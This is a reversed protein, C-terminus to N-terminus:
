VKGSAHLTDYLAQVLQPVHDDKKTPQSNLGFTVVVNRKPFYVQVMRYGLTEGEYWWITGLKPVMMRAIGLGFGRPESESVDPIPKGTKLSVIKELEAQQKAPVLVGTYLARAWHALDAPRSIIGGAAQKWSSSHRSVDAGLVPALGANDEDTSAFYGSVLRDLVAAPYRDAAYYTDRLYPQSRILDAIQSTYSHGSAREIILQALVYNTNSYLYGPSKTPPRGNGPYVYGILETATFTHQPDKSYRALMSPVADYTPIGSTMDLLSRISVDKWLPYQPLWRGVTQDISLKGAAELRLIEIATFAKTNSGIEWLNSPTVRTRGGIKTNGSTLLLDPEGPISVCLSVASISEAKARAILYSDIDLQLSRSLSPTQAFSPAVSCLVCAVFLAFARRTVIGLNLLTAGRVVSRLRFFSGYMAPDEM